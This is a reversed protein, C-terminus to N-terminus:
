APAIKLTTILPTDPPPLVPTPGTGADSPLTSQHACAACLSLASVIAITVGVRRTGCLFTARNDYAGRRLVQSRGSRLNRNTTMIREGEDTRMPTLGRR